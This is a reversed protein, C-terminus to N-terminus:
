SSWTVATGTLKFVYGSTSKRDDLDSAWNSDTYGTIEAPGNRMSKKYVLVMKIMGKLYQLAQKAAQLHESTPKKNHKSLASLTFALDPRTAHLLYILSGILAWYKNTDILRDGKIAKVLHSGPDLPTTQLYAHHMKFRRLVKLAFRHQEVYLKDGYHRLELGLFQRAAGLATMRYQDSLHQKIEAIQWKSKLIILLDNVYLLIWADESIYLNADNDLPHFGLKKLFSDICQFWLCLAQKLGYLAKLLRCIANYPIEQIQDTSEPWLWSNEIDPPLEMYVEGDIDPNLFTTVIDMQHIQLGNVAALTLVLWFKQLCTVPTFTKDFDEGPVQEYGNIVLRAKYRLSGHVNTKTKFVWKYRIVHKGTKHADRCEYTEETKNELLL